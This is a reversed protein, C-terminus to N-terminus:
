IGATMSVFFTHFNNSLYPDFFPVRINGQMDQMFLQSNVGASLMLITDIPVVYTYSLTSDQLFHSPNRHDNANENRTVGEPLEELGNLFNTVVAYNFSVSHKGMQWSATASNVMNGFSGGAIGPIRCGGPMTNEPRCQNSVAGTLTENTDLHQNFTSITKGSSLVKRGDADQAWVSGALVYNLMFGGVPTSPSSWYLSAFGGFRAYRQNFRSNLSSPARINGSLGIGINTFDEHFVAPMSFGAQFDGLRPRLTDGSAWTTQSDLWSVSVPLRANLITKPIFPMDPLKWNMSLSLSSTLLPNFTTGPALFGSGASTSTSVFLSVPMSSKSQIAGPRLDMGGKKKDSAESDGKDEQVADAPAEDPAEASEEQAFAGERPLALSFALAALTFLFTKLKLPKLM